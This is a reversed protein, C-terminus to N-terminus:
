LRSGPPPRPPLPRNEPAYQDLTLRATGNYPPLLGTSDQASKIRDSPLAMACAYSASAMGSSSPVARSNPNTPQSPPTHAASPTRAAPMAAPNLPSGLRRSRAKTAASSVHTQAAVKVCFLNQAAGTCTERSCTASPRARATTSLEPLALAEVPAGPQSTAREVASSTARSSPHSASSTSSHEVPTMPTGSESSCKVVPTGMAAAASSREGCAAFSAARATMVVSVLGLSLAYSPTTSIPPRSTVTRTPPKTFPEPM